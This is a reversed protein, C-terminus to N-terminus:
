SSSDHTVHVSKPFAWGIWSQRVVASDGGPQLQCRIVRFPLAVFHGLPEQNGSFDAPNQSLSMRHEVLKNQSVWNFVSNKLWFIQEQDEQPYGYKVSTATRKFCRLHFLFSLFALNSRIRISFWLWQSAQYWLVLHTKGKLQFYSDDVAKAKTRIFKDIYQLLLTM